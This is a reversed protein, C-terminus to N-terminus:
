WQDGKVESLVVWFLGWIMGPTLTGVILWRAVVVPLLVADGLALVCLSVGYCALLYVAAIVLAGRWGVRLLNGRRDRDAVCGRHLALALMQSVM